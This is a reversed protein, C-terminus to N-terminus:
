QSSAPGYKPTRLDGPFSVLSFPFLPPKPEVQFIITMEDGLGTGENWGDQTFAPGPLGHKEGDTGM